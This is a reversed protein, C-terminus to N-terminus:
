RLDFGMFLGDYTNTATCVFGFSDASGVTTTLTPATGSPWKIGSFWNVTKSGTGGQVIRLMFGQGVTVNSLVLTRADGVEDTTELTFMKGNNLNLTVTADDTLTYLSKDAQLQDVANKVNTFNQNVKSSEAKTNPSFTTITIAM